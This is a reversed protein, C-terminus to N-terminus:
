IRIIDTRKKVKDEAKQYIRRIKDKKMGFLKEAERLSHGLKLVTYVDKEKQSLDKFLFSLAEEKISKDEEEQIPDIAQLQNFFSPPFSKQEYAKKNEVGNYSNPCKGTAMWEIAYTLNSVDSNLASKIRKYRDLQMLDKKTQKEKGILPSMLAELQKIEKRVERLTQKYELILIQM